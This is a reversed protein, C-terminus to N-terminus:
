IILVSLYIQVDNSIGNILQLVSSIKFQDLFNTTNLLAFISTIAEVSSLAAFTQITFAATFTEVVFAVNLIFSM